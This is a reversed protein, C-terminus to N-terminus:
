SWCSAGETTGPVFRFGTTWNAGESGFGGIASAGGLVNGSPWVDFDSRASYRVVMPNDDTGTGPMGCVWGRNSWEFIYQAGPWTGGWQPGNGTGGLAQDKELPNGTNLDWSWFDDPTSLNGGVGYLKVAGSGRGMAMTFFHDSSTSMSVSNTTKDLDTDHARKPQGDFIGVLYRTADFDNAVDHLGQCTGDAGNGSVTADWDSGSSEYSTGPRTSLAGGRRWINTAMTLEGRLVNAPNDDDNLGLLRPIHLKQMPM